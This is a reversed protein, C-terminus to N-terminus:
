DESRVRAPLVGLRIRGEIDRKFMDHILAAERERRTSDDEEGDTDNDNSNRKTSAPTTSITNPRTTGTDKTPISGNDSNDANGARNRATSGANDKERRKIDVYTQYARAGYIAAMTVSNLIAATFPDIKGTIKIALAIYEFLPLVILQAEDKTPACPKYPDKYIDTIFTSIFMAAMGPFVTLMLNPKPKGRTAAPKTPEPTTTGPAFKARMKDVFTKEPEPETDKVSVSPAPEQEPPSPVFATGNWAVSEKEQQRYKERKVQNKNRIEDISSM